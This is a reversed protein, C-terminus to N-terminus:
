IVRILYRTPGQEEELTLHILYIRLRAATAFLWRLYASASFMPWAVLRGKPRNLLAAPNVLTTGTRRGRVRLKLRGAHRRPPLKWRGTTNISERPVSCLPDWPSVTLRNYVLYPATLTTMKSQEM